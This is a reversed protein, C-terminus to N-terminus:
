SAGSDTADPPSRLVRSKGLGWAMLLPGLDDDGLDALSRPVVGYRDDPFAREEFPDREVPPVGAARLVATVEVRLTRVIELPTSRQRAPETAFLEDLAAVVRSRAHAGADHAHALTATRADDDLRGWADVIRTIHRVVWQAALRDVGDRIAAAAEDMLQRGRNADSV